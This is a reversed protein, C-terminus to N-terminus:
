FGGPHLPIRRYASDIDAKDLMLQEKCCTVLLACHGGVKGGGYAHVECATAVERLTEFLLDLTDYSLKETVGTAANVDSVSMDDIPRVKESGDARRGAHRLCKCHRALRGWARGGGQTVGFRPSLHVTALDQFQLARPATMRDKRRDDACAQWLADAHPDERM